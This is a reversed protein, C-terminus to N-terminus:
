RDLVCKGGVAHMSQRGLATLNAAFGAAPFFSVYTMEASAITRLANAASSENASM